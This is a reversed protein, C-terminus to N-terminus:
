YTFDREKVQTRDVKTLIVNDIYYYAGIDFPSKSNEKIDDKTWILDSDRQFNGITLFREKGEAKYIASLLVWGKKSVTSLDFSIQPTLKLERTTSKNVEKKSLYISLKNISIKSYLAHTILFSVRYLTDKKLASNLKTSIYERSYFNKVGITGTLSAVIFGVYGNGNESYAKGAFNNPVSALGKSCKNFYDPTGKTPSYWATLFHKQSLYSNPCNEFIEFEGNIVLNQGVVPICIFLELTLIYKIHEM